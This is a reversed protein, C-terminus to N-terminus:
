NFKDGEYDNVITKDLAVPVLEIWVLWRYPHGMLYLWRQCSFKYKILALLGM